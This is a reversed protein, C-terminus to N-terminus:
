VNSATKFYDHFLMAIGFGLGFNSGYEGLSQTHVYENPGMVAFALGTIEGRRAQNLLEECVAIVKESPQGVIQANGLKHVEGM